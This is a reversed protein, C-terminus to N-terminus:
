PAAGGLSALRRRVEELDAGYRAPPAAALFRELAARAAAVDGVEPAVLGINYLADFDQPDIAVARQWAAVAERPEGLKYRASGLYSWALGLGDNEALAREARERAAAWDGRRLSALALHQWAVANRADAAFVRQLAAEAEEQRGAESLVLGLANLDEPDGSAAAGRLLEVAEAARGSAGLTLGLQRLLEPTAAGRRYSAEMVALAEGDRGAALLVQALYYSAIGMDPRAAVVRRGLSEAEALRGREYLDIVEHVQRDLAVLNKPDDEAGYTAKAPARGGLYGLSRLAAEEAATTAGRAPPWVSEAPLLAALARAEERRAAFLNEEEGGDRRLDYLEAVPLDVLKMGDRVTGRLPAWGRDLTATLAEFYSEGAETPADDLLSHGPLDPPLGVGAAALLTPALDVHRAHRDARGPPLGPAWLILPVKLTAEYAFLGHTLEGHEGLAEGHDSTFAILTPEEAGALFPALLPELAADVAAVEGLYPESAYRGALSAPPEYPAHPDYLHVWLFRRRGANAQWWRWAAAVVETAPRELARAGQAGVNGSLRDDYVDFGRDLGFRADLPFAGVFAATAFGAESLWTALTPVGPPLRFGQNDRVGHQYPYRGTLINAHSPLTVVNHAHADAFVTGAAALRDLTPTEVRTNGAFGLADARLTDVTILLLHRVAPRAAAPTAEAAAATPEAREAGGCAAALLLWAACRRTTM